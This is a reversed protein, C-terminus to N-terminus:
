NREAQLGEEVGRVDLEFLIMNLAIRVLLASNGHRKTLEEPTMDGIQSMVSRYHPEREARERTWLDELLSRAKKVFAVDPEGDAAALFAELKDFSHMTINGIPCSKGGVPRAKHAHEKGRKRSVAVMRSEIHVIWRPSSQDLLFEISRAPM